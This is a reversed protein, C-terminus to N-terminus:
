KQVDVCLFILILHASSSVSRRYTINSMRVDACVSVDAGATSATILNGRVFLTGGLLGRTGNVRSSARRPHMIRLFFIWEKYCSKNMFM